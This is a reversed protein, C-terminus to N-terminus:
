YHSQLWFNWPILNISILWIFIQNVENWTINRVGPRSIWHWQHTPHDRLCTNVSQHTFHSQRSITQEVKRGKGARRMQQHGSPTPNWRRKREGKWLWRYWVIFSKFATLCILRLFLLTSSTILSQLESGYTVVYCTQIFWCWQFNVQKIIM